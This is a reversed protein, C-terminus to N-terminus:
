IHRVMWHCYHLPLGNAQTPGKKYSVEERSKSMKIGNIICPRAKKRKRGFYIEEDGDDGIDPGNDKNNVVTKGRGGFFM